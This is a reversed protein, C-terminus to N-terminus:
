VRDVPVLRFGDSIYAGYDATECDIAVVIHGPSFSVAEHARNAALFADSEHGSGNNWRPVIAWAADHMDAASLKDVGVVDFVREYYDDDIEVRDSERVDLDWVPYADAHIDPQVILCVYDRQATSDDGDTTAHSAQAM